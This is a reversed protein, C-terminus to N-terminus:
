PNEEQWIRVDEESVGYLRETAIYRLADLAVLGKCALLDGRDLCARIQTSSIEPLVVESGYGDPMEHGARGLIHFGFERELVDWSKWAHREHLIDAGIILSFTHEPHERQLHQLTDVTRNEGSLRNEVDTIRTKGQLPAFTRRVMEERAEFPLLRKGFAHQGVPMLWVEDVPRTTLVWTAALVHAAHPPNFSGGLIAIRAM